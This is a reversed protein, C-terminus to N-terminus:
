PRQGVVPVRSDPWQLAIATVKELDATIVDNGLREAIWCARDLDHRDDVVLRVEPHRPEPATLNWIAFREPNRYIYTTMHEREFADDTEALMRRMADLTVIEVSAGVPFTREVINTALDVKRTLLEGILCKVLGPDFFARDGCIRAIADFGHTEACASARALCDDTAGRFVAVGQGGAFEAIPDDIPRDSTAVVVEYDTGVRRARSIVHGLLPRDGISRLAKGPLRNSDLRSFIILGVKV